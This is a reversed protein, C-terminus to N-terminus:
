RERSVEYHSQVFGSDYAETALHTLRMERHLAGFLPLGSGLLIPIRTLILDEILGERLFSQILRGGDIYARKRGDRDVDRQIDAPKAQSFRVKSSLSAPLNDQRLTRSMVVVPKEYPWVEFSLVKEFTGRGMILGDVSDIFKKYGYDHSVVPWQELWDINGNPRAIFGDLSTAIFIHCTTMSSRSDCIDTDRM